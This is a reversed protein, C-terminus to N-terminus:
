AAERDPVYAVEAMGECKFVSIDPLRNGWPVGVGTHLIAEHSVCPAHIIQFDCVQVSNALNTCMRYRASMAEPLTSPSEFEPNIRQLCRVCAEVTAGASFAQM